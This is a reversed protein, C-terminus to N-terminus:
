HLVWAVGMFLYGALQVVFPLRAREWHTLVFVLRALPVFLCALGWGLHTAFALVLIWIGGILISFGGVAFLISAITHM